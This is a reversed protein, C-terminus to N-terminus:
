AFRTKPKGRYRKSGLQEMGDVRRMPGRNTKKECSCVVNITVWMKVEIPAM